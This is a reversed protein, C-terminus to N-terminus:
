WQEEEYTAATVIGRKRNTNIASRRYNRWKLLPRLHAPNLCGPTDCRHDIDHNAPVEQGGNALRWALIHVYIQRHQGAQRVNLKGYGYNNVAGGWLVCPTTLTRPQVGPMSNGLLRRILRWCAEESFGPLVPTLSALAPNAAMM